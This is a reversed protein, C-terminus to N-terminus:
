LDVYVYGEGTYTLLCIVGRCYTLMCIHGSITKDFGEREKTSEAM